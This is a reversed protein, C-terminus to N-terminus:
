GVVKLMEEVILVALRHKCLGGRATPSDPCDCSQKTVQYQVSNDDLLTTSAKDVVYEANTDTSLRELVYGYGNVIDYARELRQKVKVDDLPLKNSLNLYAQPLTTHVLMGHINIM